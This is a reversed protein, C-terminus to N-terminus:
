GLSATAEALQEVSTLSWLSYIVLLTQQGGDVLTMTDCTAGKWPQPSHPPALSDPSLLMESWSWTRPM